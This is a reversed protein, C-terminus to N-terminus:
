KLTKSNICRLLDEEQLHGLRLVNIQNKTLDVVTSAEKSFLSEDQTIIIGVLDKYKDMIEKEDFIPEKGSDNLSTARIPGYKEIFGKTGMHDPIRLAITKENTKKYHSESSNLVLTLAGPWFCNALKLADENFVGIKKAQNISGCLIPIQKNFDRGKIEYIYKLADEDYLAAGLGYVTDTPIIFLKNKM